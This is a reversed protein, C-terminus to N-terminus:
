DLPNFIFQMIMIVALSVVFSAVTKQIIDIIYVFTFAEVSFYFFLHCALLISTYQFFWGLGMREKTPSFNLNYGGKPEMWSLVWDRVFAMFVLASAHVGPSDYFIDVALGMVFGLLIVLYRPTRFPLLLIFLPYVLVQFVRLYEHGLTMQKFVFVQLLLLLIFRFVNTLIASSM